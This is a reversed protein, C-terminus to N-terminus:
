KSQQSKEIKAWSDRLTVSRNFVLAQPSSDSDVCFYGQRLFQFRDGPAAAALSPEVKCNKLIELSAPNLYEKFDKEEKEDAPNAVSLLNDYLRVEVDVAQAASVWHSTGLVKRGDKTWGGRSDPDYTCRLESVCGKADKIV